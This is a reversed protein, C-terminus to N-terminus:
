LVTFFRRLEFCIDWYQFNEPSDFCLLIFVLESPVRCSINLTRNDLVVGFVGKTSKPLVQRGRCLFYCILLVSILLWASCLPLHIGELVVLVATVLRPITNNSTHGRLCM